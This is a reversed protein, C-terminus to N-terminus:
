VRRDDGITTPPVLMSLSLTSRRRGGGSPSAAAAHGRSQSHTRQTSRPPADERRALTERLPPRPVPLSPLRLSPAGSRRRGKPGRRRRHALPDFRLPLHPRARSSITRSIRARGHLSAWRRRDISLSVATTMPAAPWPPLARQPHRRSLGDTARDTAGARGHGGGLPRVRPTSTPPRTLQDLCRPRPSLPAASLCEEAPRPPAPCPRAREPRASECREYQMTEVTTRPAACDPAPRLPCARAVTTEASQPPSRHAVQDRVTREHANQGRRM